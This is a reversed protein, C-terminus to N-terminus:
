PRLPRSQPRQLVAFLRRKASDTHKEFLMWCVQAVLVLGALLAAFVLYNLAGPVVQKGRFWAAYAWIVLPFHVLYLTYSSRALWDTMTAIAQSMEPLGRLALILLSSAIGLAAMSLSGPLQPTKSLVLAGGLLPLALALLRRPQMLRHDRPLCYLAAGLMWVLFGTMRNQLVTAGLFALALGAFLQTRRGAKRDFVFFLLPFSVYYWFENCLSWLPGNSGFVPATITQLFLLNQLFTLFASSYQGNPGSNITAFDAGGLLDPAWLAIARDVFLTLLLAPVLVIWLRSLRALMYDAYNFQQWRKIVSGGVFFGSLVFFVIVSQSGLGTLFYFLKVFLSSDQLASYDVFMAARLHNACVLLASVGRLLDLWQYKM